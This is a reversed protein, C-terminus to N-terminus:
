SVDTGKSQSSDKTPAPADGSKSDAQGAGESPGESAAPADAAPDAASDAPAASGAGLLLRSRRWGVVIRREWAVWAAMCAVFLALLASSIGYVSILKVSESVQLNVSFQFGYLWTPLPAYYIGIIKSPLWLGSLDPYLALFVMAAIVCVGLVFRRPNRATLAFYSMVLGLLGLFIALLDPPLAAHILVDNPGSLSLWAVVGLGVAVPALLQLIWNRDEIGEEQRRELRWLVASLVVLAVIVVVAILFMRSTIVVDGTGTGCVSNGYTNTADVRALGCLAPKLLWMVGPFLLAAAAAVRALLWTRRSPGHWLEALFYALAMLFFPLATYFHYQFAARDIRAWSLWQWFFAVAILALGLSRRKFAQWTIFAMGFIAMWWLAPNGGDHIWSSMGPVDGGSDFWVPKLDMPWAWWPSSAAHSARLDNHYNYMSITLDWLTQGTHGAPWASDCINAQTDFHFCMLVPLSGTANPGADIQPQWPQSWPIYMVVYVIIPLVLVCLGMWAAPLGFGSGLRLWGAPASAAPDAFSAPSGPRPPVALPGFGAQGGVWFAVGAAIGVGIGGVGVELLTGNMRLLGLVGALAGVVVPAGIGFYLEERTWAVPHYANAAAALSTVALMIIFFTYNPAGNQLSGPSFTLAAAFLLGALVATSLGAFVKDPVLRTNIVWMTGAVVVGVAALLLFATLSVNGTGPAYKMEGIAMYGLVGTGAALGLITLLRGLASRILILVGISAIAYLAVWKASLALGLVLGLVPMGLWFAYRRKGGDLWLLAFIVYALLLLGGVYTDNMAIRSQAFLMGDMLSFAALLLGVSRRRFLIRALLYMCVAMLTGFLVGVLRWSFAFQGVDVSAMSGDPAFALLAEHNVDPMQPSSDLGIAVPEFPLQADSFFADGNTEIAYVTWGSGDPTRGLAHVVKTANDFVVKTVVGPMKSISGDKTASPSGDTTNVKLLLISAGATVYSDQSQNSNIAISTAPSDTAITTAPDIVVHRADLVGVGDRYAVLVQPNTTSITIGPLEGSTIRDRLSAIQDSSLSGVPLAVELGGPTALASQIPEVDIGLVSAIAQAEASANTVGSPSAVVSSAGTGLKAFDAAGPVLGRGVVSGGSTTLDISVINGTADSALIYPPMGTFVHSISLGTTVDLAVPPKATSALGQRVDDLSTTDLRYIRGDSTGVYVLGTPGVESFASAGTIPYTYTLARTQLDYVKVDSGTAVLVRDGYRVDYNATAESDTVPNAPSFATRPQVLVDKVPVSLSGTSTVKDDSFLTISGAIAYKAFHPHTWEYITINQVDHRIGYKFDQLFETATRAHYVEDFHMQAPEGLRYVRMSLIALILAVVVWVDLKDLRGRPEANLAASRDPQSSPRSLRRWLSMVWRPVYRPQMALDAYARHPGDDEAWSDEIYAQDFEDDRGSISAGASMAVGPSEDPEGEGLSTWWSPAPSDVARSATERALAQAARDRMQLLAWVMVFGTVVASLAIPWILGDFWTATRIAVSWDNLTGGITGDGAPIGKYQGLVALLNATNVVALLGYVVRWRPSAALLIAGLGFFPFLYREHVRTPVVFFAITLIALAVLLSQADDRWAAWGSVGLITALLLGTGLTAAYLSGTLSIAVVGCIAVASVAFAGWLSHFEAQAWSGVRGGRGSGVQLELGASGGTEAAASASKGSWAVYAAVGLAAAVLLAVASVGLPFPGVIFGTGGSSSTADSWPADHIWSLSRDMAAGTSDGVLSWPNYANLTLYPYEGFTNLLRSVMSDFVMGAFVVATGAGILLSATGRLASDAIPLYRRGLAVGGVGAILGVGLTLIGAVSGIRHVIGALDLGTFPLCVLAATILGAGLSTLVREPSPEGDKPNLSRRLVVFAVVFGLIGLQLKTLAALVALVSATERRDKQLERLGLLLLISGVADAQGWIASNFWTIPNIVVIAAAIFARRGSVGLERVMVWVVAALGLDALMPILKVGEGINGGSLFSVLGLLLLYVPPYDLFGARDYFGIPGHQAIDNGWAQFAGLDNPFGSGPLLVYAIIFRLVFGLALLAAIALIASVAGSTGAPARGQPSEERTSPGAL